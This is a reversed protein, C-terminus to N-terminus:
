ETISDLVANVVDLGIQGPASSDGASAFTMASGFLEGCLRSVIGLKGMSYETLETKVPAIKEDIKAEVTKNFATM